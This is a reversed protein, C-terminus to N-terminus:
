RQSGNQEDSHFLKLLKPLPGGLSCEHSITEFDMWKNLLLLRKYNKKRNKARAVMKNMRASHNSCNQYTVWPVNMYLKKLIQESTLLFFNNLTKKKFKARTAMKNM